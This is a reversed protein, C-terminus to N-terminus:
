RINKSTLVENGTTGYRVDIRYQHGTQYWLTNRTWDGVTSISSQPAAAPPGAPTCATPPTDVNEGLAALM